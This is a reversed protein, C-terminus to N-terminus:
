IVVVGCWMMKLGMEMVKSLRACCLEAACPFYSSPGEAAPQPDQCVKSRRPAAGPVVLRGRRGQMDRMLALMVIRLM